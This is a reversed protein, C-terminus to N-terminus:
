EGEAPGTALLGHRALVAEVEVRADEPLASWAQDLEQQDAGAEGEPTRLMPLGLEVARIADRASISRGPRLFQELTRRGVDVLLAGVEAREAEVQGRRRIAEERARVRVADVHADYALARREWARDVAVQRLRPLTSTDRGLIRAVEAVSRESAPLDRYVLFADWEASTEGDLPDWPKREVSM